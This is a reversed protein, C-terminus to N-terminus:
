SISIVKYGENEVAAKLLNDDVEKSLEVIANGETHSPTASVVGDIAELAKKAHAECHGCMMGEIIMKKTMVNGGNVKKNEGNINCLNLRLANTVVCFSSLSMFLSCIMPNLTIGLSKIFVGAAIPIGISNYFFAWFLNQKIIKFTERSLRIAKAVDTLKSHMLVVDAADIVVDTGNGIAVGVDASTLAVADNIGDDVMMVKTDKKLKIVESGKGDPLVEAIVNEIGVESAIKDAVEKKDGSLMYLKLGM